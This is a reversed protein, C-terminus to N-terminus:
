LFNIRFFTLTQPNPKTVVLIQKPKYSLYHLFVQVFCKVNLARLTLSQPLGPADVVSSHGGTDILHTEEMLVRGIEAFFSLPDPLCYASCSPTMHGQLLLLLLLDQAVNAIRYGASWPFLDSGEVWLTNALNPRRLGFSVKLYQLQDLPPGCLHNSPLLVQCM